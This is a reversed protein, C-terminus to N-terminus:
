CGTCFYELSGCRGVRACDDSPWGPEGVPRSIAYCKHTCTEIISPNNQTCPEIAPKHKLKMGVDGSFPAPETVCSQAGSLDFTQAVASDCVFDTHVKIVCKCGAPIVMENKVTLHTLTGLNNTSLDESYYPGAVCNWYSTLNYTFSSSGCTTDAPSYM